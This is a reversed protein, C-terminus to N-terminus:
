PMRAMSGDGGLEADLESCEERTLARNRWIPPILSHAEKPIVIGQVQGRLTIGLARANKKAHDLSQGEVIAAGQFQEGIPRTQDAYALWWLNV